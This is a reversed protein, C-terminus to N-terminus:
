ISFVKSHGCYINVLYQHNWKRAMGGERPGMRLGPWVNSDGTFALFLIELEGVSQSLSRPLPTDTLSGHTTQTSFRQSTPQAGELFPFPANVVCEPRAETRTGISTFWQRPHGTEGDAFHLVEM